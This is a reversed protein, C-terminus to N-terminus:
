WFFQVKLAAKKKLKNYKAPDAPGDGDLDDMADDGAAAKQAAKLKRKLAAVKRKLAV